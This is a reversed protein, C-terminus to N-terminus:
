AKRGPGRNKYAARLAYAIGAKLTGHTVVHTLPADFALLRRAVEARIGTLVVEAGLLSVARAARLLADAVADDVEPVGTIDLIAFRAGSVHMGSLLAELVREARGADIRGVLPMVMVEDTVPVLPTSLEAVMAVQQRVLEEQLQAREEEVKKRATIDTTVGRRGLPVGHKDRIVRIRVDVWIERGDKTIWRYEMSGTEHHEFIERSKRVIHERDDPHMVEVWLNPRSKWEEVTYGLMPEIYDNVYTMAADDPDGWAEWVIGPVTSALSEFRAAAREAQRVMEEHARDLGSANELQRKLREIQAELEVVRQYLRDVEEEDSV